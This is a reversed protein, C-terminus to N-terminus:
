MKNIENKVSELSVNKRPYFVKWKAKIGNKIYFKGKEFRMRKEEFRNHAYEAHKIMELKSNFLNPAECLPCKYYLYNYNSDSM